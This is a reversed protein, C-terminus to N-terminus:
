APARLRPPSRGPSPRHSRGCSARPRSWPGCRTRSRTAPRGAMPAAEPRLAPHGPVSSPLARKRTSSCGGHGGASASRRRSTRVTWPWCARTLLFNSWSMRTGGPRACPRSSLPCYRIRVGRHRCTCTSSVWPGAPRTPSSGVVAPSPSCSIASVSEWRPCMLPSRPGCCTRSVVCGRTHPMTTPVWRAAWSSCAPGSTRTNRCIRVRTRVCCMQRSASLRRVLRRVVGCPLRGPAPRRAGQGRWRAATRVAM